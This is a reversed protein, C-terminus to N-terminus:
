ELRKVKVVVTGDVFLVQHVGHLLSHKAEKPDRYIQRKSADKSVFLIPYASFSSIAWSM